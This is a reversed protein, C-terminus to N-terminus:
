VRLIIEYLFEDDIGIGSVRGDCPIRDRQEEVATQGEGTDDVASRPESKTDLGADGNGQCIMDAEYRM